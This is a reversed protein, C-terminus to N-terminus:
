SAIYPLYFDSVVLLSFIMLLLLICSLFFPSQCHCSTLLFYPKLNLSCSDIWLSGPMNVIGAALHESVGM